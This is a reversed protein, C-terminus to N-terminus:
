ISITISTQGEVMSLTGAQAVFDAGALATGAIVAYDFTIAGTTGNTRLITVDVSGASELVSYTESSFVLNGVQFDNDVITVTTTPISLAATGVLNSLVITFTESPEINNDNIIPVTFTQVTQGPLFTLTGSRSLYDQGARATGNVTAFDVSTTGNTAGTRVVSVMLAGGVVNENVSYSASSFGVGSDDNIIILTANPIAPMGVGATANSLSMQVTENPEGIFDNILPVLFTQRTEGEAFTLTSAVPTYDAGPTASGGTTAYDVTVASTTGGRRVVTIVADGDSELATFIPASFELRGPGAISGGYIRALFFRTANDYATFRGGIIIKRDQQVVVANISENAGDGFNITPDTKGNRNLRTIRNRTVGNFTTFDGVVLI